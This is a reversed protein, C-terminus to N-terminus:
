IRIFSLPLSIEKLKKRPGLDETDIEILYREYANIITTSGYQHQRKLAPGYCMHVHGHFLYRPSFKDMLKVFAKFGRHPLDSQDGLGFAPAHTVLIDFGKHRWLAPWLKLIRIHMDKETYQHPRDPIYQMSGGLGMIRIGEHVYIQDEICICGEPPTTEYKVDHNGHVYLVHCPALTALFSLYQPKLDGCAIILDINQLKEKEYFDWYYKSEEDAILLIKM